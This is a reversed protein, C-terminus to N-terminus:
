VIILYTTLDLIVGPGRFYADTGLGGSLVDLASGDLVTKDPGTSRLFNNGNLRPGAGTGTLNDVRTLFPRGSSWETILAFLAALNTDHTTAGGILMDEGANGSLVDIGNGGILLDRNNGGSLLDNGPGGVIVNVGSGGTLFDNGGGGFLFTSNTIGPAVTIVDNGGQGFAFIRGTVPTNVLPSLNLFVQVGGGPAPVVNIVDNGTGGGVFLDNQSQNNPNTQLDFVKVNVAQTASGSDTGDNVVVRITNPGAQPFLHSFSFTKDPNPVVPVSSGDDFKLSVTWTDAGADAFSLNFDLTQGRVGSSPGSLSVIPAVNTVAITKTDTAINRGDDAVFKVVYEGENDPTFSFAGSIGTAFLQGNKTVEWRTVVFQSSAGSVHGDLTIAAGEPSSTPAGTISAAIQPVNTVQITKTDSATEGAANTVDFRVVYTGDLGPTFSFAEGSGSAFPQGNKTVTWARSVIPGEGSVAGFLDIRSGQPSTDPAGNIAAALRPTVVIVASDTGSGGDGDTVTLTALYTGAQQALFQANLDALTALVQGSTNTITWTSSHTDLTGADTFSGILPVTDGVRV